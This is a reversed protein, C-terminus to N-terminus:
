GERLARLLLSYAEDPLAPFNAIRFATDKYAGYGWGLYISFQEARKRLAYLDDPPKVEFALVTPARYEPPMLPIFGWRELEAYLKSARAYLDAEVKVLPPREPPVRSLLFIGLLNPTHTPEHREASQLIFSLTNHRQRPMHIFREKARPSVVLVGLGPPLGLCKQVSAFAVDILHWPLGIGGLSSTADVAILAEPFAKRIESIDPIFAGVSTEVHVVAVFQVEHYSEAATRIQSYFPVDATLYIAQARPNAGKQLAYWRQAFDGQIFHLTSCDVVADSLIQWIETASSAFAVTWDEPLALYQAVAQQAEKFIKRWEPDRHYRSLLGERLAFNIWTEVEPFLQAPGPQFSYRIPGEM